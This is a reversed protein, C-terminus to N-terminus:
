EVTKVQVYKAEYDKILVLLFEREEYEDTGPAVHYTDIAKTLAEIYESEKNILKWTKM